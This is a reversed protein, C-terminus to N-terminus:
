PRKTIRVRPGPLTPALVRVVTGSFHDMTVSIPPVIGVDWKPPVDVDSFFNRRLRELMEVDSQATLFKALDPTKVAIGDFEFHLPQDTLLIAYAPDIESDVHAGGEKNALILIVQKRTYTM